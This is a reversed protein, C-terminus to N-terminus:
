EKLFQILAPIMAGSAGTKKEFATGAIDLHIWPTGENVFEQLFAAAISAGALRGGSNSLDAVYSELTKLHAKDLPLQWIKEHSVKVAQNFRDLYAQDNTFAGTYDTGLASVVAGTLTAVDILHTAGEKQAFWLADALTLRGEADTSIIEITKGNAATLIDDPVIADDGIRNDTAAIIAMVAHPSQLRAIAEIAGLVTAAGGMDCKMNPMGQPTKLSYGGTDYMVGKGVLATKERPAHAPVYDVQILQPADKSGKNVGLFAGMNMAECAAKDYVKVTVGEINELGKAYEALKVANLYNYPTNILDRAHNVAEGIVIGEHIAAAREPIETYSRLRADEERKSKFANFQYSAHLLGSFLVTTLAEPVTDLVILWDDKRAALAQTVKTRKEAEELASKAIVIVHKSALKGLTSHVTFDANEEVELAWDLAAEVAKFYPNDPAKVFILTKTEQKIDLASQPNFM